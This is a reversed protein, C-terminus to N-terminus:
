MCYQKCNLFNCPKAPETYVLASRRLNKETYVADFRNRKPRKRQRRRRKLERYINYYIRRALIASFFLKTIINFSRVSQIWSIMDQLTELMSLHLGFLVSIIVEGRMKWRGFWNRRDLNSITWNRQTIFDLVKPDCKFIMYCKFTVDVVNTSWAWM